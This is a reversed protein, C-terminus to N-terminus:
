NSCASAKWQRWSQKWRNWTDQWERWLVQQSPPWPLVLCVSAGMKVCLMTKATITAIGSESQGIETYNGFIKAIVCFDALRFWCHWRWLFFHVRLTELWAFFLFLNRVENEHFVDLFFFVDVCLQMWLPCKKWFFCLCSSNMSAGWLGHVQWTGGGFLLTKSCFNERGFKWKAWTRPQLQQRGKTCCCWDFTTKGDGKRCCCDPGLAMVLNLTTRCNGLDDMSISTDM